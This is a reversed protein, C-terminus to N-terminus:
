CVGRWRPAGGQLPIWWEYIPSNGMLLRMRCMGYHIEVCCDIPQCFISFRLRFGHIKRHLDHSKGTIKGTFVLWNFCLEYKLVGPEALWWLGQRNNSSLPSWISQRPTSLFWSNQSLPFSGFQIMYLYYVDLQLIDRIDWYWRSWRIYTTHKQWVQVMGM